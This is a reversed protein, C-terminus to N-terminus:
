SLNDVFYGQRTRLQNKPQEIPTSGVCADQHTTTIKITAKVQVFESQGLKTKPKALNLRLQDKYADTPM